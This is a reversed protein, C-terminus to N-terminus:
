CSSSEYLVEIFLTYHLSSSVYLEIFISIITTSLSIFLLSKLILTNTKLNINEPFIDEDNTGILNNQCLPCINDRTNFNIKCKNCRKM